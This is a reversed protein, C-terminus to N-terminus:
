RLIKEIAYDRMKRAHTFVIMEGLLGISATQVGLVMLLVGLILVPRDALATVGLVRQIALVGCILFGSGFLGAGILGFFRLPKKTFKFLFVLTLIDLLRRLYVGPKYVRTRTDRPHQPVPIEEVRFGRQYALLPLFRHLDGYLDIERIVRRHIAKVGCSIDQFRVGTLWSTLFHFGYTQARNIWSDNRPFRRAIAFDCGHEIAVLLTEIGEPMVQFYSSLTILVEGQAQAFGVMLATAEGFRRPLALVRIPEGSAELPQLAQIAQDCGGDVVFIFEFSRGARSLVAAHAGYLERLDDWRETVPVVVSVKVSRRAARGRDLHQEAMDLSLSMPSKM